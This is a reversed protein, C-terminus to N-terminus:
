GFAQLSEEDTSPEGKATKKPPELQLQDYLVERLQKPSSMNFQLGSQVFAEQELSAIEQTLSASQQHLLADVLVGNVEMSHVVRMIPM